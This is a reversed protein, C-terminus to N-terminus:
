KSKGQNAVADMAKKVEEPDGLYYYKIPKLDQNLEFVLPLGTPINIDVIEEDSINNLYKFVARLSNGHAAILIKKGSKLAPAIDTEWFPLVREVTDKLCETSPIDTGSEIITTCILIDTKGEIFDIMTRELEKESMRGHGVSIKAEPFLAKVKREIVYISAIRNHVFYVQGKRKLEYEIAEKIIKDNFGVIETKIPQRELPPTNIVSIDRGGMLALYLTRPIPTATLTLVDVMLRMKKYKEKHRVGFRQEEDIILLGLNKFAVDKSLLRHTGIIIDIEGKKVQEVIVKQQSKKRFRSLMEVKVPFDKLRKTFTSYHQEALITTPVLIAVQKNDMVAKFTARLAVETKGYGVDGCLLRDMPKKSQMDNKVAMTSKVQDPTEKYPFLDEVDKQWETDKSFAFGKEMERKAQVDLIEQAMQFVGKQIKIKTSQWTKTGLRSLKPNKRNFFIYKQIKDLDTIPVYLIDGDAYELKVCEQNKKGQQLVSKEIYKGIGYDVHVVFDGPEIDVFASIPDEASFISKSYKTKKQSIIIISNHQEISKFSLTDVSVIREIEDGFFEIRVPYEFTSPYLLINEGKICFDGWQAIGDARVYNLAVLKKVFEERDIHTQKYLKIPEM